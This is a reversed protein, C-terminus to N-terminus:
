LRNKVLQWAALTMGDIIKNTAILREFENVPLPKVSIMELNELHQESAQLQRAVFVDTHEDSLGNCPSFWGVYNMQAAQYGTEEEFERKAATLPEEAPEVRGAPFEWVFRDLLYRWQYTLLLTEDDLWPVVFATRLGRIGYYIGTQGTPLQYDERSVSYYPNSHVIAKM